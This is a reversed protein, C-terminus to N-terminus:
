TAQLQKKLFAAIGFFIGAPILFYVCDVVVWLYFPASNLTTNYVILDRILQIVLCILSVFGAIRCLPYIKKKDM